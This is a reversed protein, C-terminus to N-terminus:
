RSGVGSDIAAMSGAREDEGGGYIAFYAAANQDAKTMPQKSSDQRASPLEDTWRQGNLWVGLAPVFQKDTTAAYADGFQMISAALEDPSQTKCASKFKTLAKVRETKKPWHEWANDFASELAASSPSDKVRKYTETETETEAQIESLSDSALRKARAEGGKRGNATNRSRRAEIDARTDQHDAFDHIMWGGDVVLFSPKLPDNSALEDLAGLAWKATALRTALFGDTLMRRSYLTAEVLCRFAADSLPLIKPNDPFDQTFKGYLRDDKAMSTGGM